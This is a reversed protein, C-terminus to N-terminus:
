GQVIVTSDGFLSIFVESHFMNTSLILYTRQAM